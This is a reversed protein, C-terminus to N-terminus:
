HYSTFIAGGIDISVKYIRCSRTRIEDEVDGAKGLVGVVRQIKDRQADPYL